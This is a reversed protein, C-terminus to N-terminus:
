HTYECRPILGEKLLAAVEDKSAVRGTIINVAQTLKVLAKRYNSFRQVWRIDKNQEM